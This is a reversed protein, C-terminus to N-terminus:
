FVFVRKSWENADDHRAVANAESSDNFPKMWFIQLRKKENAHRVQKTQLSFLFPNKM